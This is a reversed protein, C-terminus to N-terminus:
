SALLLITEKHNMRLIEIAHFQRVTSWPHIRVVECMYEGTDNSGVKIIELSGNSHMIHRDSISYFEEHENDAILENDHYWRVTNSFDSGTYCIILASM